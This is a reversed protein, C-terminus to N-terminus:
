TRKKTSRSQWRMKKKALNKKQPNQSPKEPSRSLPTKEKSLFSFTSCFPDNKEEKKKL